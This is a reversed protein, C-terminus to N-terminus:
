NNLQLQRVAIQIVDNSNNNYLHLQLARNQAM